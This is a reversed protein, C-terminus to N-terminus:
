DRSRVARTRGCSGYVVSVSRSGENAIAVDVVGDGDFDGTSMAVPSSGAVFGGAESLADGRHELRLISESTQLLLFDSLDDRDLDTRVVQLSSGAGLIQMSFEIGRENRLMLLPGFNQAILLDDDGDGDWDGGEIWIPSLEEALLAETVIRGTGDRLFAKVTGEVEFMPISPAKGRAVVVLDDVGNVDVDALGISAPALPGVNLEDILLFGRPVNSAFTKMVFNEGSREAVLLEARGDGTVDMSTVAVPRGNTLISIPSDFLKDEASTGYHVLLEGGSAVALDDRGDHDFDDATLSSPGDVSLTGASFHGGSRRGRFLHITSTQGSAVALDASGDGDFDGAAILSPAFDVEIREETAFGIQGSGRYIAGRAMLDLKGDGSFDGVFLAASRRAPFAWLDERGGDPTVSSLVLTPPFDIVVGNDNVLRAALSFVLENRGDRDFDGIVAGDADSDAFTIAQSTAFGEGVGIAIAVINSTLAVLDPHGDGTLDDAVVANPFGSVEVVGGNRFGTGGENIHVVFRNANGATVLDPRGDVNWDVVAAPMSGTFPSTLSRPFGGNGDGYLLLPQGGGVMMLDLNGDGDFDAALPRVFHDAQPLRAVEFGSPHRNIALYAEFNFGIGSLVFDPRRDGNFDGIAAGRAEGVIGLSLDQSTGDRRLLRVASGAEDTIVADTVRDGDFDGVGVVQSSWAAADQPAELRHFSCPAGIGSASVATVLVFLLRLSFSNM